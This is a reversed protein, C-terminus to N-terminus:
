IEGREMREQFQAQAAEMSRNVLQMVEARDTRSDIHISPSFVVTGRGLAGGRANGGADGGLPASATPQSAPAVQPAASRAMSLAGASLTGTRAGAIGALSAPPGVFNGALDAPPGVLEGGGGGGTFLSFLNGAISDLFRGLQMQAQAVLWAQVVRGISFEGTRTFRGWEDVANDILGGFNEDWIARLEELRQREADLMQDGIALERATRWNGLADEVERRQEASLVTMDLRARMMREEVDLVARARQEADAIGRAAEMDNRDRLNQAFGMTQAIAAQREREAREAAADDRRQQANLQDTIFAGLRDGEPAATARGQRERDAKADAEAKARVEAANRAQQDAARQELRVLEQLEAQEARLEDIRPQYRSRNDSRADAQNALLTALERGIESIRLETSDQRGLGLMFDWAEGAGSKVGRWARELFGLQEEMAKSRDIGVAAFAEQAVAAAEAVRGQQELARIQEYVSMTLFGYQKNLEVAARLPDAGLKSLEAVTTKAEIGLARERAIVLELSQAMQARSVNGALMLQTIVQAAERQTGNVQDQAAAMEALSGATVGAQNGTILLSRVYADSENRGLQFAATLVGVTAAAGGIALAMPPVAARIANFATAVGGFSDRIQGGQQIAVMWVPMGSALSTVVDTIQMPLQQMAQSLQGSTRALALAQPAATGAAQGVRATAAATLNLGTTTEAVGDSRLRIGVEEIAM